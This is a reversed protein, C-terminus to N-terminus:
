ITATAINNSVKEAKKAEDASDCHKEEHRHFKPKHRGDITLGKNNIEQDGDHEYHKDVFSTITNSMGFEIMQICKNIAIKDVANLHRGFHKVAKKVASLRVSPYFAEVDLSLHFM